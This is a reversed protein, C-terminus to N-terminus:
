AYSQGCYPCYDFEDPIDQNCSGCEADADIDFKIEMEDTDVSVIHKKIHDPCKELGEFTNYMEETFEFKKGKVVKTPKKEEVREEVETPLDEDEDTEEEVPKSKKPKSEEKAEEEAKHAKLVEIEKAKWEVMMEWLGWDYKKDINKIFKEMKNMIIGMPTPQSIYPINELVYREYAQEEKTLDEESSIFSAYDVKDKDSWNKIVRKEEDYMVQYYVDDAPKQKQSFRRIVLDVNEYHAGISTCKVDFIEKFLGSKMGWTYYKKDEVENVDWAIMKTHKNKVCWDDMRDIANILVFKTPSMGSEFASPNEKGNTNYYHLLDCGENEFVKKKKGDGTDEYKYKCLKRALVRFPWNKDPHWIMSFYGGDDARAFSREIMLADTSKERAEPVEGVLRVVHCTDPKLVVPEFDPVEVPNGYGGKSNAAAERAKKAKEYKEKRSSEAMRKEGEIAL